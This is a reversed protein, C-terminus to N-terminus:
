RGPLPPLGGPEGPGGVGPFARLGQPNPRNKELFAGLGESAARRLRDRLDPDPESNIWALAEDALGREGMSRAVAGLARTRLRRDLIVQGVARADDFRGVALLSDLLVAGLSARPDPLPISIVATAAEQYIRTAGADDEARAMGEALRILADARPEPGPIRRAIRVGREFQRSSSASAVVRVLAADRWIPIRSRWALGESEVLLADAKSALSRHDADSGDSDARLRDAYRAVAQSNIAQNEALLTLTYSAFNANRIQSVLDGAHSMVRRARELLDLRDELTRAPRTDLTDTYFDEVTAERALKETLLISTTALAMLRADHVLPDTVQVAARGGELIATSADDWRDYLILSRAIRDFALSRDSPDAIARADPILQERVADLKEPDVRRLGYGELGGLPPQGTTLDTPLQPRGELDEPLRAGPSRDGSIRPDEGMPPFPAPAGPRVREPDQGARGPLAARADPGGPTAGGPRTPDLTSTQGPSSSTGPRIGTGTGTGEGSGTSPNTQRPSTQGAASGPTAACAVGLVLGLAAPFSRANRLPSPM